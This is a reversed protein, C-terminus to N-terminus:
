LASCLEKWSGRDQAIQHLHQLDHLNNLQGNGSMKLGASLVSQITTRPRGRWKKAAKDKFSYEMAMRAPCEHKQLALMISPIASAVSRWFSPRVIVWLLVTTINMTGLRDSTEGVINDYQQVVDKYRVVGYQHRAAQSAAKSSVTRSLYPIAGPM